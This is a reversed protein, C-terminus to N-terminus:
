HNKAFIGDGEYEDPPEPVIAQWEAACDACIYITREGPNAPATSITDPSGCDPCHHGPMPAHERMDFPPDTRFSGSM